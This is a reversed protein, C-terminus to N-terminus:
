SARRPQSIRLGSTPGAAAGRPVALLTFRNSPEWMARFQRTRMALQGSAPDEVILVDRAPDFGVVVVYHRYEGISLMVILPRGARLHGYVGTAGDDLGGPFVSAFYGHAELTSKLLAGSSGGSLAATSALADRAGPSLPTGYYRTLMQLAALGCLSPSEQKLPPVGLRLAEGSYRFSASPRVDLTGCGCLVACLALLFATKM